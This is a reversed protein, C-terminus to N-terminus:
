SAIQYGDPFDTSRSLEQWAAIEADVERRAEGVLRLADSGLVIHRPPKPEAVLRLIADGAKAPNGPQHGGGGARAERLPARLERYDEITSPARVM